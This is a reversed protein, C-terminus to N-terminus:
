CYIVIQHPVEVQKAANMPSLAVSCVMRQYTLRAILVAARLNWKSGVLIGGDLIRQGGPM